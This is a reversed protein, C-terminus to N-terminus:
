EHDETNQHVKDCKAVTIKDPNIESDVVRKNRAKSQSGTKVSSVMFMNNSNEKKTSEVKEM